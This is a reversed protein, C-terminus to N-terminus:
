IDKYSNLALNVLRAIDTMFTKCWTINEQSNDPLGHALIFDLHTIGQMRRMVYVYLPEKGEIDDGMEGEFSVEPALTGYIKRALATTETKLKLSKLRFQVVYELDPGAYVSYSCNGQGEVPTVSGRVLEKARDDCASRAVSTKTAFFDAIAEDNDYESYSISMTCHITLTVRLPVTSSLYSRLNLKQFIFLADCCRNAQGHGLSVFM